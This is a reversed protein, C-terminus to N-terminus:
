PTSHIELRAGKWGYDPHGQYPVISSDYKLGLSALSELAWATKEVISFSPARYGAIAERPLIKSVAELARKLDAEFSERDMSTVRRHQYSHLGIEHGADYIKRVLEPRREAIWGLVFFTAKVGHKKLLELLLAVPGELRLELGDWSSPPFVGEMNGVCFWDELDVTFANLIKSHASTRM